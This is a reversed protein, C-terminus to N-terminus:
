LSRGGDVGRHHQLVNNNPLKANIHITHWYKTAVYKTM